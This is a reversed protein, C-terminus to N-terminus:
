VWVPSALHEINICRFSDFTYYGAESIGWPINKEAAYQMQQEVGRQCSQDMLTNPYSKVFLTPMLYEFM